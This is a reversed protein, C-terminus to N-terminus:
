KAKAGKGKGKGKEKRAAPAALPKSLTRASKLHALYWDDATKWRAFYMDFVADAVPVKSNILRRLKKCLGWVLQGHSRMQEGLDTKFTAEELSVAWSTAEGAQKLMDKLQAEAEQKKTLPHVEDAKGDDKDGGGGQPKQRVKKTTGVKNADAMCDLFSSHADDSLRPVSVTQDPALIGDEGLLHKASENDLEATGEAEISEWTKNKKTFSLETNMLVYVEKDDGVFEPDWCWHGRLKKKSLLINRKEEDYDLKKLKVFEWKENNETEKSAGRKHHVLVKFFDCDHQLWTQFMCLAGKKYTPALEVPFKNGNKVERAFQMYLAKNDMVKISSVDRGQAKINALLDQAREVCTKAKGQLDQNAEAAEKAKKEAHAVAQKAKEAAEDAEKQAVSRAAEMEAETAEQGDEDAEGEAESATGGQDEEERGENEAQQADSDQDEAEEESASNAEGEAGEGTAEAASAEGASAKATSAEGASAEAASAEGASAEGAAEEETTGGAAEEGANERQQADQSFIYVSANWENPPPDVM